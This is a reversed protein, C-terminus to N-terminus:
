SHPEKNQSQLSIPPDPMVPPTFVPPRRLWPPVFPIGPGVNPPPYIGVIPPIRTM